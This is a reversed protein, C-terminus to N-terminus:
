VHWTAGIQAEEVEEPCQEAPAQELAAARNDRRAGITPETRRGYPPGPGRERIPAPAGGLEQRGPLLHHLVIAVPLGVPMAAVTWHGTVQGAEPTRAEL